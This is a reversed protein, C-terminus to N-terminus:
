FADNLFLHPIDYVLYVFTNATIMKSWASHYCSNQPCSMKQWGHLRVVMIEDFLAHWALLMAVEGKYFHFLQVMYIKNAYITQIIQHKFIQHIQHLYKFGNGQFMNSGHECQHLYLSKINWTNILGQVCSRLRTEDHQFCAQVNYNMIYVM